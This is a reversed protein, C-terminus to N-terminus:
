KLGNKFLILDSIEYKGLETSESVTENFDDSSSNSSCCTIFLSSLLILSLKLLKNM